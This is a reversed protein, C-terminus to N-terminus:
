SKSTRCLDELMMGVLRRALPDNYFRNRGSPHPVCRFTVGRIVQPHVLIKELGFYKRVDGGLAVVVSGEGLDVDSINELNTRSFALLYEQKTMGCQDSLMKWLRWGSCGDPYPALAHRPNNSHPNDTGVLIPRM